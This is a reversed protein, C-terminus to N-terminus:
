ESIQRLEAIVAHGAHFLQSLPHRGYGFDDEAGSATLVGSDTLGYFITQGTEPSPFSECRNMQKWFQNSVEIFAANALRVNQHSHGGLIGGGNSFYLSTTGDSLAFLTVAASPYGTEMLLGWVPKERPLSIGIEPRSAVLAQHRLGSYIGDTNKDPSNTTM